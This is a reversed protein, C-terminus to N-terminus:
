KKTYPELIFHAIDIDPARLLPSIDEYAATLPNVEQKIICQMLDYSVRHKSYYQLRNDLWSEKNGLYVREEKPRQQNQLWYQELQSQSYELYRHLDQEYNETYRHTESDVSNYSAYPWCFVSEYELNHLPWHSYYGYLMWRLEREISSPGYSVTELIQMDPKVGIDDLEQIWDSVRRVPFSSHHSNCITERIRRNTNYTRGVKHISRDRPDVLAYIYSPSKYYALAAKNILQVQEQEPLSHFYTDCQKCCVRIFNLSYGQYVRLFDGAKTPKNCMQCLPYAQRNTKRRSEHCFPCYNTSYGYLLPVSGARVYKSCRHQIHIRNDEIIVEYPAGCERCNRENIDFYPVALCNFEDIPFLQGCDKCARHEDPPTDFLRKGPKDM